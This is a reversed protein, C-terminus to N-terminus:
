NQPRNRDVLNCLYRGTDAMYKLAIPAFDEAAKPAIYCAEYTFDGQYDIEGLARTLEYWDMVGLFPLKHQDAQYDNDHVHLSQLRDHGLARVFDWAEHEQTSPLGIHGTDLCAVMYESDLTDVYRIFEAITSCTDHVPVKRVPDLQVMNEVGVKIGYEKCIPILSRYFEMNKEFIEEEHGHYVFHHLPHVVAVKAGLMASIAVSRQIIPLITEKYFVDDFWKRYFHFPTHTQTISLGYSEVLKKVREAEAVYLTDQNFVAELKSMGDLSYDVSDFGAQKALEFGNEEGFRAIIGSPITLNM